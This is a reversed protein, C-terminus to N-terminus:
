KLEFKVIDVKPGVRIAYINQNNHDVALCSVDVDLVYEKIPNGEWDFKWIRNAYAYKNNYDEPTRGVYLCYVYDDSYTVHKFGFKNDRSFRVGTGGGESNDFYQPMNIIYENTLSISDNGFLNVFSLYGHNFRYLLLSHKQHNFQLMTQYAMSKVYESYGNEDEPYRLYHKLSDNGLEKVLVGNEFFGTGFVVDEVLTAEFFGKNVDRFDPIYNSPSKICSDLNYTLVKKTLMDYIEFSGDIQSKHLRMPMGLEGPGRGKRGLMYIEDTKLDVLTIMEKDAKMDVVVLNSGIVELLNLSSLILEDSTELVKHNLTVSKEFDIINSDSSEDCSM